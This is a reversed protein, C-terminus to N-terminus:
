QKKTWERVQKFLEMGVTRFVVIPDPGFRIDTRISGCVVAHVRGNQSVVACRNRFRLSNLRGTEGRQEFLVKAREHVSRHYTEFRQLKITTMRVNSGKCLRSIRRRAPGINDMSKVQTKHPTLMRLSLLTELKKLLLISTAETDITGREKIRGDRNEQLNEAARLICM